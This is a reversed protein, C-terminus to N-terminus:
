AQPPNGEFANRLLYGIAKIELRRPNPYQNSMVLECALPLDSERMGIDRLATPAGNSLALDYMGRPASKTGLAHAIKDMAEPAAIENYALAHPLIVSHVDAHSLNFSGGLTHCLKHHLAMSVKGLVSGCLWAGYLADSRATRMEDIDCIGDGHRRLIPIARALAAIGAEAMLNTVPSRNEGYLGEAGHALANLASTISINVPLDLTLDPDYLVTRPMVRPDTGTRKIGGETLGYITTMESGAYTTPIALTPLNLELAIAKGLGITSGGGIAVVGDAACSKALECAARAVEIPVHMTARDFIGAIRESGIASRVLEALAHQGPTCLVLVRDLGLAGAEAGLKSMSGAGFVVRQAQNVYAFNTLSTKEGSHKDATDM